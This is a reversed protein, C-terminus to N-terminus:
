HPYVWQHTGDRSAREASIYYSNISYYLKKLIHWEQTPLGVYPFFM